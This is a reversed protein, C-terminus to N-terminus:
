KNGFAIAAAFAAAISLAFMLDSLFVSASSILSLFGSAVAVAAFISLACASSVACDFWTCNAYLSNLTAM